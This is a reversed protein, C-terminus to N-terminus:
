VHSHEKAHSPSAAVEKPGLGLGSVHHGSGCVRGNKTGPLKKKPCYNPLFLVRGLCFGCLSIEWLGKSLCPEPPSRPLVVLLIYVYCSSMPVGLGPCSFFPSCSPPCPLSPQGSSMRSPLGHRMSSQDLQPDISSRAWKQPIAVNVGMEHYLQKPHLGSSTVIQSM